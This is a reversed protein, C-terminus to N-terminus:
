PLLGDGANSLQDFAEVASFQGVRLRLDADGNALGFARRVQPASLAGPM